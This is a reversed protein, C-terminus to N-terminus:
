PQDGVRDDALRSTWDRLLRVWNSEVERLGGGLSLAELVLAPTLVPLSPSREIPEYHDGALRLFRLRGSKAQYRWVEPVGLAAYIPLRGASSARNDVEIWLDPPPDGANLDVERDRPLRAVNAIYFAKDPEKGVGLLRGAGARKFTTNETGEYALGLAEAVACVILALRRSPREHELKIPSVIELTGDHYAMRLHYNAPGEVLQVYVDFPVDRLVTVDPHERRTATAM